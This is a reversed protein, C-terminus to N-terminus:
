FRIVGTETVLADLPQDVPEVPVEPLEQAAFAFGIAITPRKARLGELTRDYFGGGYGLRFGRRDWAVMPVILIEPEIWAGEAPIKAGFEGEILACGPTWARFKLPQGAGMIVPVGVPGQHAAMAESPDIETRMAMYGALPKAGYEALLDALLAAAQGQGAAFAQKRAAFATKRAEAKLESITTM